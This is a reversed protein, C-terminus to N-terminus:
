DYVVSVIQIHFKKFEITPPTEDLIILNLNMPRKSQYTMIIISIQVFILRIRDERNIANPAYKYETLGGHNM